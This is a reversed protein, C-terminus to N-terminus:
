MLLTSLRCAFRTSQVTSPMTLCRPLIFLSHDEWQLQENSFPHYECSAPHSSCIRQRWLVIVSCKRHHHATNLMWFTQFSHTTDPPSTFVQSIPQSHLLSLSPSAFLIISNSNSFLVTTLCVLLLLVLFFFLSLGAAISSLIAGIGFRINKHAVTDRWHDVRHKRGRVIAIPLRHSM